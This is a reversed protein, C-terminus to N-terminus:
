IRISHRGTRDSFLHMLWIYYSAASQMLPRFITTYIYPLGTSNFVASFLGQFM